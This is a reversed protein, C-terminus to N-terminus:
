IGCSILEAIPHSNGFSHCDSTPQQLEYMNIYNVLSVGSILVCVCM